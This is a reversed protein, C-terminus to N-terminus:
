VYQAGGEPKIGPNCLGYPTKRKHRKKRRRKEDKNERGKTTIHFPKLARRRQHTNLHGATREHHNTGGKKNGPTFTSDFRAM